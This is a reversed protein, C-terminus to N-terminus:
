DQLNNLADNIADAVRQRVVVLRNQIPSWFYPQGKQFVYPGVGRENFVPHRFKSSQWVIAMKFGDRNPGGSRISIGNRTKGTTVRTSLGAKINDRLGTHGGRGTAQDQYINRVAFYAKRGNKPRILALRKGSVRVNGPLPKDLEAKQADIIEEGSKRLERRLNRAMIPSRSKIYDLTAKLDPSELDFQFDADAM